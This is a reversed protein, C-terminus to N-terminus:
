RRNKSQTDDGVTSNQVYFPPSKTFGFLKEGGSSRGSMGSVEL